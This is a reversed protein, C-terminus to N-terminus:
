FYTLPRRLDALGRQDQSDTSRQQSTPRWRVIKAQRLMKAIKGRRRGSGACILFPHQKTNQVVWHICLRVVDWGPSNFYFFVKLTPIPSCDPPQSASTQMGGSTNSLYNHPNHGIDRRMQTINCGQYLQTPELVGSSAETV